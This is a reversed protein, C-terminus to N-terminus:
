LFAILKQHLESDLNTGIRVKREPDNPSLSVWETKEAPNPRPVQKKEKGEPDDRPDDIPESPSLPLM